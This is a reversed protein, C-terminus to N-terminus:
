QVPAYLQHNKACVPFSISSSAERTSTPITGSARTSMKGDAGSFDLAVLLDVDLPALNIVASVFCGEVEVTLLGSADFCVDVECLFHRQFVSVFQAFFQDFILSSSVFHPRYWQFKSPHHFRRLIYSSYVESNPLIHHTCGSTDSHIDVVNLAFQHQSSNQLQILNSISLIHHPIFLVNNRILKNIFQQKIYKVEDYKLNLCSHELFISSNLKFVAQRLIKGKGVNKKYSPFYRCDKRRCFLM